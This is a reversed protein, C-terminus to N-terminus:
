SLEYLSFLDCLFENGMADFSVTDVPEKGENKFWASISYILYSHEFM